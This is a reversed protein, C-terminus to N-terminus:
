DAESYTEGNQDEKSKMLGTFRDRGEAEIKEGIMRRGIASLKDEFHAWAEVPNGGADCFSLSEEAATHIIGLLETRKVTEM